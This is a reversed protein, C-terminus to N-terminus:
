QHKAVNLVMAFNILNWLVISRVTGGTDRWYATVPDRDTVDNNHEDQARQRLRDYRQSVLDWNNELGVLNPDIQTDWGNAAYGMLDSIPRFRTAEAVFQTMMLFARAQRATGSNGDTTGLLERVAENITARNYHLDNRNIGAWGEIRGYNEGFGPTRTGQADRMRGGEMRQSSSPTAANYMNGYDWWGVVYLDSRRIQLRLYRDPAGGWEHIDAQFYDGPNSPNAGGAATHDIHENTGPVYNAQHNNVVNRIANIFGWYGFRDDDGINFTPNGDAAQASPAVGVAGLVTSFIAAVLATTIATRAPKAGPRRAAFPSRIM